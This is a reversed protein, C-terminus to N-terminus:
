DDAAVRRPRGRPRTQALVQVDPPVTRHSHDVLPLADTVRILEKLLEQLQALKEEGFTSTIEAYIEDSYPGVADILKAGGPSIAILSKRMDDEATKRVILGRADLDRLIRSLSPPLLSTARALATVEIESVTNLARLVRWQQETIGFLQLSSRFRLMVAERALLLSMPLSRSFSRLKVVVQRRPTEDRV